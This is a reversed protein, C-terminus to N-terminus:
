HLNIVQMDKILNMELFYRETNIIINIDIQRYLYIYKNSYVPRKLTVNELNKNRNYFFAILKKISVKYENIM